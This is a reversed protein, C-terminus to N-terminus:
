HGGVLFQYNIYTMYLKRQSYAKSHSVAHSVNGMNLRLKGIQITKM